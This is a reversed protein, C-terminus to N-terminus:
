TNFPMLKDNILIVLFGTLCVIGRLVPLPDLFFCFNIASTLLKVASTILTMLGILLSVM